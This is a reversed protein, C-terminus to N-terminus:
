KRKRRTKKKKKKKKKTKVVRPKVGLEGLGLFDHGGIRGGQNGADGMLDPMQLNQLVKMVGAAKGGKGSYKAKAKAEATRQAAIISQERLAKLYAARHIQKAEAKIAQEEAREAKKKATFKRIRGLVL